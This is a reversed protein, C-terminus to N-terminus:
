HTQARKWAYVGAAAAASAGAATGAALLLMWLQAASDGSPGTGTSPPTVGGPGTGGGPTTGPTTGGGPTEGAPPATPQPTEGAGPTGPTFTPTATANTVTRTTPPATSTATGTQTPTPATGGCDVSDGTVQIAQNGTTKTVFTDVNLDILDFDATGADICTFVVRVVAANSTAINDGGFDICGLLERMTNDNQSFNPCGAGVLNTASVVSVLSEDYDLSWQVAQYPGGGLDLVGVDVTVTGAAESASVVLSYDATGADATRAFLGGGAVTALALILVTAAKVAPLKRTFPMQIEGKRWSRLTAHRM